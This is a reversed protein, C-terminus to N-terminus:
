RTAKKVRDALWDTDIGRSFEDILNWLPKQAQRCKKTEAEVTERDGCNFELLQMRRFEATGKFLVASGGRVVMPGLILVLAAAMILVSLGAISTFLRDLIRRFATRM